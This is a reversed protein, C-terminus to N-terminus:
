MFFTTQGRNRKVKAFKRNVQAASRPMKEVVLLRADVVRWFAPLAGIITM